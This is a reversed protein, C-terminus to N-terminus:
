APTVDKMYLSVVEEIDAGLWVATRPTVRGYRALEHSAKNQTRRIFTIVIEREEGVYPSQHITFDLLTTLSYFFQVKKAVFMTFCPQINRPFFFVITNSFFFSFSAECLYNKLSNFIVIKLLM